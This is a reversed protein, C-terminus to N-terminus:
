RGVNRRNRREVKVLRGQGPAFSVKWITNHGNVQTEVPELEGSSRSVEALQVHGSFTITVEAAQQPDRNVLMTYREGSESRFHGIVLPGGEVGAIVDDAPLAQTGQPLPQTHYVGTSTLRLLTPGLTKVEANIRKVQEYKRTPQGEWTVIAEGWGEYDKTEPPSVYTFYVIGHAGYALATNVQWRLDEETPDRYSFHPVSLLVYVFPTKHELGARRVIELNEFYDPREGNQMARLSRLQASQAPCRRLFQTVHQEYTPTGLQQPSAYTPFLNIFPVHLPDRQILYRNIAGLNEFQSANPEDTVFYGYLPASTGPIIRHASRTRNSFRPAM